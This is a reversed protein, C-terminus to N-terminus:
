TADAASRVANLRRQLSAKLNAAATSDAAADALLEAARAEKAKIAAERKACDADFAKQAAALKDDHQEQAYKLEAAHDARQAALTEAHAQELDACTKTFHELRAKAAEPNVLAALLDAMMAADKPVPSATPQLKSMETADKRSARSRALELAAIHQPTEHGPAGIGKEVIRGAAGRVADAGFVLKEVESLESAM